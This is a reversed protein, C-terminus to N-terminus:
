PRMWNFTREGNVRLTHFGPSRPRLPVECWGGRWNVSRDALLAGSASFLEIRSVATIAPVYLWGDGEADVAFRLDETPATVLANPLQGAFTSFTGLSDLGSTIVWKDVVNVASPLAWWIDPQHRIHVVQDAETVGNLEALDYRFELGANLGSNTAPEVQVWRAISSSGSYDTFPTHGRTITTTGLPVTTTLKAGLGGVDMLSLAGLERTTREVGTGSIAAGADEQMDTAPSLVLEGNNIVTSGIPVAFLGPSEMRLNTGPDILLTTGPEVGSQGFGQTALLVAAILVNTRM